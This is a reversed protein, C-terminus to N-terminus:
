ISLPPPLSVNVALINVALVNVALIVMNETGALKFLLEKKKRQARASETVQGRGGSPGHSRRHFPFQDGNGPSSSRGM